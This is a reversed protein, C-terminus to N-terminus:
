LERVNISFLTEPATALCTITLEDTGPSASSVNSFALLSGLQEEPTGSLSVDIIVDMGPTMGPAPIVQTYPATIGWNAPVPLTWSQKSTREEIMLRLPEHELPDANHDDLNEQTMAAAPLVKLEVIGSDQVDIIFEYVIGVSDIPSWPPIVANRIAAGFLIEGLDPDQAFIGITRLTYGSVVSENGIRGGILITFDDIKKKRGILESQQINALNTLMLIESETYATETTKAATFDINSIGTLAKAILSQGANTIILRGSM